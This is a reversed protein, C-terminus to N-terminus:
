TECTRKFIETAVLVDLERGFPFRIIRFTGRACCRRCHYFYILLINHYFLFYYINTFLVFFDGQQPKNSGLQCAFGDSRSKRESLKVIKGPADAGVYVVDYNEVKSEDLACSNMFNIRLRFNFDGASLHERRSIGADIKCM